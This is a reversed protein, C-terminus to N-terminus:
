WMCASQDPFHVRFYFTLHQEIAYGVQSFVSIRPNPPLTKHSYSTNHSVFVLLVNMVELSRAVAVGSQAGNM